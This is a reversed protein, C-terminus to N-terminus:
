KTLRGDRTGHTYNQKGQRAEGILELPTGQHKGDEQNGPTYKNDSDQRNTTTDEGCPIHKRAGHERHKEGLTKSYLLASNSTKDELDQVPTWKRGELSHCYCQTIVTCVGGGGLFFVVLEAYKKFRREKLLTSISVNGNVSM